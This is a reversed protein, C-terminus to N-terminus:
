VVTTMGCQRGWQRCLSGTVDTVYKLRVNLGRMVKEAWIISKELRVQRVFHWEENGELLEIEM